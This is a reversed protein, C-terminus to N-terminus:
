SYIQSKKITINSKLLSIFYSKLRKRDFQLNEIFAHNTIYFFLTSRSSTLRGQVTLHLTVNEGGVTNKVTCSYQGDDKHFLANVVRLFSTGKSFSVKHRESFTRCNVAGWRLSCEGLDQGHKQWIIVPQPSGGAKCWFETSQSENM